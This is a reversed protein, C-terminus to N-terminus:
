FHQNKHLSSFRLVRLFVRAALVLVLLLSLGYIVGLEPILGPGCQHSTLARVVTCIRSGSFHDHNHHLRLHYLLGAGKLRKESSGSLRCSCQKKLTPLMTRNNTREMLWTFGQDFPAHYDIITLARASTQGSVIM